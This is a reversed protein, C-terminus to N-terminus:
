QLLFRCVDDLRLHRPIKEHAQLVPPWVKLFSHPSSQESDPWFRPVEPVAFIREIRESNKSAHVMRGILTNPDQHTRTSMCPSCIFRGVEVSPHLDQTFPDTLQRLLGPVRADREFTRVLDMKTAILAVKSIKSRGFEARSRGKLRMLGKLEELLWRQELYAARGGSLLGPIDIIVLL